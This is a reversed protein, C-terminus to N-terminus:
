TEKRLEEIAYNLNIGYREATGELYDAIEERSPRLAAKLEVYPVTFELNVDDEWDKAIYDLLAEAKERILDTM